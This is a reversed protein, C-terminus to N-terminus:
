DCLCDNYPSTQRSCQPCIGIRADCVTTSLLTRCGFGQYRGYTRECGCTHQQVMLGDSTIVTEYPTDCVPLYGLKTAM